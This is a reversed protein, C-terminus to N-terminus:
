PLQEEYGISPTPKPVNIFPYLKRHCRYKNRNLQRNIQNCEQTPLHTDKQIATPCMLRNGQLLWVPHEIHVVEVLKKVTIGKYLFYCHTDKVPVTTIKPLEMYGATTIQTSLRSERILLSSVFVINHVWITM